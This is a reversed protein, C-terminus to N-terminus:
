TFLIKRVNMKRSQILRFFKTCILGVPKTFVLLFFMDQHYMGLSLIKGVGLVIVVFLVLGYIKVM